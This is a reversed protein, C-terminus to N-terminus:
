VNRLNVNLNITPNSSKRDRHVQATLCARQAGYDSVLDLSGQKKALTGSPGWFWVRLVSQTWSFPALYTLRLSALVECECLVHASTEEEAGCRGCLPSNILGM